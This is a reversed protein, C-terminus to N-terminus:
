NTSSHCQLSILQGTYNRGHHNSQTPQHIGLSPHVKQQMSYSCIFPEHVVISWMVGVDYGDAPFMDDSRAFEHINHFGLETNLIVFCM